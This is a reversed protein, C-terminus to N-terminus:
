PSKPNRTTSLQCHEQRGVQTPVIMEPLIFSVQFQDRAGRVVAEPFPVDGAIPHMAIAIHLRM